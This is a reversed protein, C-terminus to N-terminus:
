KTMDLLDELMEKGRIEISHNIKKIVELIQVTSFNSPLKKNNMTHGEWYM